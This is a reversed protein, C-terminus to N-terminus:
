NPRRRIKKNKRKKEMELLHKDTMKRAKVDQKQRNAIGKM